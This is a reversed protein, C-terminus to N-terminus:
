RINLQYEVASIYISEHCDDVDAWGERSAITYIEARAGVFTAARGRSKEQWQARGAGGDGTAPRERRAPRAGARVDM